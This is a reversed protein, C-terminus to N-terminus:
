DVEPKWELINEVVVKYNETMMSPYIFDVLQKRNSISDFFPFVYESINEKIGEIAVIADDETAVKWIHGNEYAIPEKPELEGGVMISVSEPFPEPILFDMEKTHCCATVKLNEGYSITFFIVYYIGEPGKKFFKFPKTQEFGNEKLFDTLGSTTSIKKFQTLNTM